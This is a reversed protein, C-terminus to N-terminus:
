TLISLKLIQGRNVGLIDFKPGLYAILARIKLPRGGAGVGQYPGVSATTLSALFDQVYAFEALHLSWLTTSYVFIGM